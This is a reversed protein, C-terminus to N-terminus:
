DELEFDTPGNCNALSMIRHVESASSRPVSPAYNYNRVARLDLRLNKSFM